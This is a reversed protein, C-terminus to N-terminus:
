ITRGGIPLVRQFLRRFQPLTLCLAILLATFLKFDNADIIKLQLVGMVFLRYIISGLVICILRLIFTVQGFFVEGIIIAALAIVITGVGSNIDAFGNHQSLIGGALAIISNSLMLGLIIMRNTSIGLSTAMTPNDGTAIIAQGIETLFFGYMLDILLIVFGGGILILDYYLPLNFGSFAKFITSENLLSLNPRQMVKLNISLLGTMTLIGALLSPIRCVTIMVGTVLGALAGAIMALLTALLPHVGQHILMVCTAAGLPYSGETTMDAVNLIRFSIFLGLSLISWLIGQAIASVFLEM